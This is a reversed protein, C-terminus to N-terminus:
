SNTDDAPCIPNMQNGKCHRMSNQTTKRIQRHSTAQWTRAEFRCIVKHNYWISLFMGDTIAM